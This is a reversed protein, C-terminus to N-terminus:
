SSRKRLLGLALLVLGLGGAAPASSCGCGADVAQSDGGDAKSITGADGSQVVAADGAVSTQADAPQGQAADAGAVTGSDPVVATTADPGAPAGADPPIGVGFEFAGLDLTGDSPRAEFSAPHVYQFSPALAFGGGTGPDAGANIAPSGTLLHYDFTAASAFLPDTKVLNNALDANGQDTVNGAGRFINNKIVAPTTSNVRIFLGAPSREDVFTNNVVYLDTGPNEAAGNEERYALLTPNDTAPGQQIVNGIVYSTGGNPLDLEYSATGDAADILKNYLIFNQAARSKVLHGIKAHHSYSYRLTFKGVHGIYMNHSYGDGAGNNAFESTEILIESQANAGTLIGNENDHFYCGRVTLNPGEQRIGAGNKDAVACGSLEVNEVVTSSGQIVWIAKGQSNQGAADIRARGNVGRITLDNKNFACVDGDYTGNGAADIEVTDGANAAAFAACPKAYTKGPGVQLTNARAPAALVLLAGAVLIAARGM